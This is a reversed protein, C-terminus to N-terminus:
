FLTWNCLCHTKTKISLLQKAKCGLFVKMFLLFLEGRCVERPVVKYLNVLFAKDTM